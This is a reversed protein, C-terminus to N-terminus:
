PMGAEFGDRFLVDGEAVFRAVLQRDVMGTFVFTPANSLPMGAERWDLFVWGSAATAEVVVEDGRVYHGDGTVTGAAAPEVVTAVQVGPADDFYCVASSPSPAGNGACGVQLASRAGADQIGFTATAALGPDIAGYQVAIEGQSPYLVVQMDVLASSGRQKWQHWEVVTCADPGAAGPRPCAAFHAWRLTGTPGRELDALAAYVRAFHAHRNDPIAPLPCDSRWHGGDEQATDEAFAIYGNSSVVLAAHPEGYFRVPEPLTIAVGGDDDADADGAATLTLPTAAGMDIWSSPCALHPSSRMRYGWADHSVPADRQALAPASAALAVFCASLIWTNM